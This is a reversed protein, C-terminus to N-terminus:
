SKRHLNLMNLTIGKSHNDELELIVIISLWLKFKPNLFSKQGWMFKFFLLCDNWVYLAPNFGDGIRWINAIKLFIAVHCTVHSISFSIISLFRLSSLDKGHGFKSGTGNGKYFKDRIFQKEEKFGKVWAKTEINWNM